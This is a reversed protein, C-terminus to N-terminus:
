RRDGWTAEALGPEGVYLEGARRAAPATPARRAGATGPRRASARDSQGESLTAPLPCYTVHVTTETIGYMNVLQPQVAGFREFWPQLSSV